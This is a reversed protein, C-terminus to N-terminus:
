KIWQISFFVTFVMFAYSLQRSGPTACWYLLKQMLEFDRENVFEEIWWSRYGVIVIWYRFSNVNLLLAFHMKEIITSGNEIKGMDHVMPIMWVHQCFFSITQLRCNFSYFIVWFKMEFTWISDVSFLYQSLFAFFFFCFMIMVSNVCNQTYYVSDFHLCLFEIFFLLFFVDFQIDLLGFRFVFSTFLFNNQCVYVCLM